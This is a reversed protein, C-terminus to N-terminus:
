KASSYETRFVAIRRGACNGLIGRQRSSNWLCLAKINNRLKADCLFNMQVVADIPVAGPLSTAQSITYVGQPCIIVRLAITVTILQAPFRM